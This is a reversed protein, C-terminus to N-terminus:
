VNMEIEKEFTPEDTPEADGREAAKMLRWIHPGLTDIETSVFQEGGFRQIQESQMKLMVADQAFIKRGIPEMVLKVLWRPIWRLRFSVVAYLKTHFDSVPTCLSTVVFHTTDGLAYDVQAVGPLFFRDFHTVQGGGPALIRAALGRPAPEGIYEAQCRDGWRTIQCRIDNRTGTGRFLGKHLFSTHPVDLANEITGHLTGMAEALRVAHSYRKDDTHPLEFPETRPPQDANPYVWIFGQQDRAPYSTAGRGARDADGILGPIRTCAGDTAFEWGHYPCRLCSGAVEGESLPVNRHPCRDLLAGVEGADTRFLVMPIGLVTVKIPKRKLKKSRCAVYWYDTMRAVSLHPKVLPATLHPELQTPHSVL